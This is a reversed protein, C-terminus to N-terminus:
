LNLIESNEEALAPASDSLDVDNDLDWDLDAAGEASNSTWAISMRM